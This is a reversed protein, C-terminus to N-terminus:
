QMMSIAQDLVKEGNMLGYDMSNIMEIPIKKPECIKKSKNLAYRVQPGLLVVDVNELRKSMEAEPFAEIDVEIGRKKASEQMKTVLLSTSMGCSCFLRVTIM